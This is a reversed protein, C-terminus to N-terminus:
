TMVPIRERACTQVEANRREQDAIKQQDKQIKVRTVELDQVCWARMLVDRSEYLQITLDHRYCMGIPINPSKHFYAM